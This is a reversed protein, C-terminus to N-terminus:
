LCQCFCTFEKIHRRIYVCVKRGCSQSNWEDWDRWCVWKYCWLKHIFDSGCDCTVCRAANTTMAFDSPNAVHFMWWQYVFVVRTLLNIACGWCTHKHCCIISIRYFGHTKLINAKWSTVFVAMNFGKFVLSDLLRLLLNKKWDVFPSFFWLM